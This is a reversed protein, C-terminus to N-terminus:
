VIYHFMHASLRKKKPQNSHLTNRIFVWTGKTSYIHTICKNTFTKYEHERIEARMHDIAEYHAYQEMRWGLSLRLVFCVVFWHVLVQMKSLQTENRNQIHRESVGGSIKVLAPM